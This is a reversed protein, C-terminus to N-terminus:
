AGDRNMQEILYAKLKTFAQGRHSIRNKIESPLEAATKGYDSVLFIPDYGFGNTGRPEDIVIGKWRSEFSHYKGDPLYLILSCIFYADRREPPVGKLRSLLKANNEEDTANPGAYRASYIGPEGSLARVELGSDDALVISGTLESIIEAKKLANEKYTQGDEEISPANRIKNLSVVNIDTEKLMNAIESVKGENKTAFIITKM